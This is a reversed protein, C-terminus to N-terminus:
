IELFVTLVRKNCSNIKHSMVSLVTSNFHSIVLFYQMSIGEIKLEKTLFYIKLLNIDLLLTGPYHWIEANNVIIM